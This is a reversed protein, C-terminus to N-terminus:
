RTGGYGYQGYGQEGYDDEPVSTGTRTAADTATRTGTRTTTSTPRSTRTESATPTATSEPTPTGGYGYTPTADGADDGDFFSEVRSCGALSTLGTASALRLLGRRDLVSM